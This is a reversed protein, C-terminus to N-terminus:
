WMSCRPFEDRIQHFATDYVLDLVEGDGDRFLVVVCEVIDFSGVYGTYADVLSWKIQRGSLFEVRKDPSLKHKDAYKM